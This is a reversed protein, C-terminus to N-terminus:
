AAMLSVLRAAPRCCRPRWFFPGFVTLTVSTSWAAAWFGYKPRSGTSSGSNTATSAHVRPASAASFGLVASLDLFDFFTGWGGGPPPRCSRLELPSLPLLDEPEPSRLRPLLSLNCATSFDGTAGRLLWPSCCARCPPHTSENVKRLISCRPIIDIKCDFNWVTAAIFTGNTFQAEHPSKVGRSKELM